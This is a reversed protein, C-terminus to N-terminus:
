RIITIDGLTKRDSQNPYAMGGWIQGDLFTAEIKWVYVDQQCMKGQYTGDWGEAPHNDSTLLRSEWILEGWKDFVQAHYDRLGNGVPQWVKVLSNTGDFGPAFANPVYLSKKVIYIDQTVSDSCGYETNATLMVQYTNIDPFLHSPNTETSNTGDGFSWMYSVANSSQNTFQVTGNEPEINENISYIFAAKPQMHVTVTDPLFVTDGCTAFSKAYLTVSYTGSDTYTHTIATSDGATSNGDGFNWTVNNLNNGNVDFQVTIPQCGQSPLVTVSEVSPLAYVVFPKAITDYCHFETGAILTIIYSGPNSYSLNPNDDTSTMGNGFNWNYGNAGASTNTLQVYAPFGCAYASQLNFAATGLPNIIVTQTSTDSCNGASGILTVRYSGAASYTHAPNQLASINGDGFNWTYFSAGFSSNSFLIPQTNICTDLFTFSVQPKNAITINQCVSDACGFSSTATLCATYSGGVTYIHSPSDAQSTAGDGFQWSLQTIFSGQPPIVSEHFAVVTDACVNNNFSFTAVPSSNVRITQFATDQVCGLGNTVYLAVTYVGASYIHTTSTGPTDVQSAGSCTNTLKDFNFCWSLTAAGTSEDTFTVALPECGSSDSLSFFANVIGPLVQVPRTVSTDICVNHATLTVTYTATQDTSNFYTHSTSNSYVVSNPTEDGWNFILSDPFGYNLTNPIANILLPSCGNTQSLSFDIVPYPNVTISYNGPTGPCVTGSISIQVNYQITLPQPITDINNNYLTQPPISTTGTTVAGTLGAPINATWTIIADPTSSAVNVQQTSQGTCVTQPALSFNVSATPNVIITDNASEGVCNNASPTITFIVTGPNTGTNNLTQAPINGSGNLTNGSIDAPAQSSWTFTSNPVDSSLTIATTASNNCITQETYPIVHPLPNVTVTYNTDPGPCGNASANVTIILNGATSNPNTLVQAPVNGVGSSIFGTIGSATSDKWSFTANPVPSNFIIESTSTGSCVTQAAPLIFSPSPNVAIDYSSIDNECGAYAATITYVATIPVSSNNSVTQAPIMNTGSASVGTLGNSQSTWSFIIAPSAFSITVAQTTQGSCITQNPVSFTPNVGPRVFALATDPPGPCGNASATIVYAVSQLSQSNNSLVQAIANGNGNSYGTLSDSQTAIWTFISGSVNSSLSINLQTTTCITDVSPLATTLPTPNVIRLYTQPLGPCANAAPTILYVVSDPANGSNIITQPPINGTGSATFGSINADATASWNFTSGNVTPTFIVTATVSDSCVPPAAPLIVNPSPNVTIAYNSNHGICGNATPTITYVVSDISTGRNIIIQSPINGSSDPIFGILNGSHIVLWSFSTGQTASNLIVAQTSSDSCLTQEAVPILSPLPNVFITDAVSPGACANATPTITYIVIGTSASDNNLAQAPILNSTQASAFGTVGDPSSGTWGFTSGTVHSFLAINQPVSQSCITQNSLPLVDPLPNVPINYVATQTACGPYGATITYKVTEPAYTTDSLTQAPITNTGNAAVGVIGNSQSVWSFNIGSTPGSIFVPQSSQGSCIVQTSPSFQISVPPLVVISITDPLGNCANALPTIIYSVTQMSQSSNTLIQLISDGSSASAGTVSAPAIVTWSFTSGAITQSLAINTSTGTCITDPAITVTVGPTPEVYLAINQAVGPCVAASPTITFVVSDPAAGSNVITQAPINGSGSTTYGSLNADATATWTFTTGTVNSTLVIASETSDSCIAPIAPAIVIPAPKVIIHFSNDAFGSCGNATPTITYIVSDAVSGTNIITQAPINGSGSAQYGTLNGSSVATWAFTTNATGSTPVAVVSTAGSCITQSAPSTVSPVPSVTITDSVSPGTCGNLSPTIIYIVYGTGASSNILTQSPITASNGSAIFGTIGDPSSGTWSFQTGFVSGSLSVANTAANSCVTQNLSANTVLPVPNVTINVTSSAAPCVASPASTTLTAVAIGSTISPTFYSTLSNPQGFAGSPSTWTSSTAVTITGQLLVSDGACVTQPSGANATANPFVSVLMKATDYCTGINTILTYYQLLITDYSNSLNVIPNSISSDNLGNLPRWTYSYDAQSAAGIQVTSGNCVSDNPGTNSVPPPFVSITMTDWAPPCGGVPSNTSLTDIIVGNTIVPTYTTVAANANAFTGGSNSTWHVATASGGYTGNLSVTQGACVIVSPGANVTPAPSVTVVVSDKVPCNGGNNVNVYYTISQSTNGGDTLLIYPNSLTDDSLGTSPSWLYTQGAVPASGLQVSDGSCIQQNPGPNAVPLPDVVIPQSATGNGCGNTETLSISYTGQTSYTVSGPSQNTSSAPAGGAFSWNYATITSGCNTATSTPMISQGACVAGPASISVKPKANVTITSISSQLTSCVNTASLQVSYTGQNNFRIVPSASTGGVFAFNLTSDHACIASLSDVTWTYTVASCGGVPPTTNNTTVLFPACGTTPALTYTPSNPPPTVCITKTVTDLGCVASGSSGAVLQVQYTGATTFNIGVSNNGPYWNVPNTSGNDNGLTDFAGGPNLTWGTTPTIHWIISTTPNCGNSPDEGGVSNNNLSVTTNQCVTDNNGGGVAFSAMPPSAIFIPGVAAYGSGSICPNYVNVSIYFSNPNGTPGPYNCSTHPFVHSLPFSDNTYPVLTSQYFTDVPTSDNYSITYFTGAPNPIFGILYATYTYPACETIDSPGIAGSSTGGHGYFVQYVTTDTCGDSNTVIYDLVYLGSSYTHSVSAWQTASTYNASGDGWIITSTVGTLPTSNNLFNFVATPNTNCIHFTPYGNFDTSYANGPGPNLLAAPNQLVTVTNSSTATCGFSNTAVVSATYNNSSSGAGPAYTHHSTKGTDTAGDGFSWKYTDGAQPTTISFSVPTTSCANNPNFTFTAPPVPNVTVKVTSSANCGNGTIQVTYTTTTVPSVTISANSPLVSAPVSTWAYTTPNGSTLTATLTATQGNCITQDSGANVGCQASALESVVM